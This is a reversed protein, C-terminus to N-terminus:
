KKSTTLIIVCGASFVSWLFFSGEVQAAFHRLNDLVIKIIPNVTSQVQKINAPLLKQSQLYDQLSVTDKTFVPFYEGVKQRTWWNITRQDWLTYHYNYLLARLYKPPQNQFPSHAKDILQLVESQGTLIRYALALVWPNENYSSSSATWMQWDLRPAYPAVFPLSNNVNGPKYLFNYENWPGEINNAGEIIIEPRGNISNLSKYLKYNYNNFLKYPEIKKYINYVDANKTINTRSDITFVPITSMVFCSIATLSCFIPIFLTRLPRKGQTVERGLDTLVGCITLALSILGVFASGTIAKIAIEDFQSKTFTIKGDLKNGDFKIDYLVYIGYLISCHILLNLFFTFLRSWKSARQKKIRKYFVQDDLLSIMLTIMLINYTNFNGTVIICLQLFLQNLFGVIRVGRIPVFFLFPLAGETVQSYIVVLRLWWKPFHHCYWALPTPLAISEFHINFASLDWWKPTGSLLKSIATSFLVRFLLWRVLWLTIIDSKTTSYRKPRSQSFLPAVIIALLGAELLLDDTLYQNFGQGVQYLSFYLIWLIAYVLKVCLKQSIFGLFSFVIGLLALVDMMYEPDLGIHSAFWLLTPKTQIKALLTKGRINDLFLKVPLIGNNGYLGPIQIYFSLFSFLYVVCIGRLFLNRTQRVSIM